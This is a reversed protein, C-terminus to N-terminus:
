SKDKFLSKVINTTFKKTNNWLLQASDQLQKGFSNDVNGGLKGVFTDARNALYLIFCGSIITTIASGVSYSNDGNLSIINTLLLACIAVLISLSVFYIAVNVFSSLIDSVKQTKFVKLLGNFVQGAINKESNSPMSEALATFPLMLLKLFLDATVGLTMFAYKFICKIFIVISVIGVIVMTASHGFGYKIWQFATATAHYFYISIRSPLCLIDAATDADVLLELSKDANVYNHIAGCTDPINVKYTEAVAGLIFDSLYTGLALIPSIIMAFIKAPGYRLIMIWVAIIIGQKFINYFATKYDGSDRILKYAELGVWFAYMILLFIVAFRVLSIQLVADIASLAKMLMLGIKAEIPVFTTPELNIKPEFKDFDNSINKNFTQITESTLWSVVEKTKNLLGNQETKPEQEVIQEPIIDQKISLDEEALSVSNICFVCLICIIFRSLLKFIRM